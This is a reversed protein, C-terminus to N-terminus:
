IFKELKLMSISGFKYCKHSLNLFLEFFDYLIIRMGLGEIIIGRIELIEWGVLGVNIVFGCTGMILRVGM